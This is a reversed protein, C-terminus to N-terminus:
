LPLISMLSVIALSTTSATSYESMLNITVGVILPNVALLILLKLGFEKISAQQGLSLIASFSTKFKPTLGTMVSM